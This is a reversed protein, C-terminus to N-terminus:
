LRYMIDKEKSRLLYTTLLMSVASITVAIAWQDLSPVRGEYMLAKFLTLFYYFPNWVFLYHYESPMQDIPYIIPMLYFLMGLLVTIIHTLDRLYLTLVALSVALAFNFVFLILAAAPLFLLSATPRVGCFFGLILLSVLSFAFNSFAISVVVLPFFTKPLYIKKLFSEFSILSTSGGVLSETIFSWPLMGSFLYIAFKQPDRHFILSFVLTIVGMTLLPNLLSWAFGLVSNHYRRRLTNLVFTALAFKLKRLETFHRLVFRGIPELRQQELAPGPRSLVLRDAETWTEPTLAFVSYEVQQKM